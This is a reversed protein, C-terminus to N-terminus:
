PPLVTALQILEDRRTFGLKAMGGALAGSVVSASIGLEYSIVKNSHGRAALSVVQAERQTLLAHSADPENMKAVLYRRGDSEFRDVISWRGSVLAPWLDLAEDKTRNSRLRARDVQKAVQQLAERARAQKAPGEAHVLQGSPHLVAEVQGTTAPAQAVSDVLRLGAAIHAAVRSWRSRERRTAWRPEPLNVGICLGEGSASFANINLNDHIGFTANYRRFPEYRAFEEPRMRLAQSVTQCPGAVACRFMDAPPARDFMQELAEVQSRELGVTSSNVVRFSGEKAIYHMGTVGLHTQLHAAVRETVAAVWRQAEAQPEYAAEVIDLLEPRRAL